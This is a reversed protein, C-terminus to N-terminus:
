VANIKIVTMYTTIHSRDYLLEHIYGSAPKTILLKLCDHETFLSNTIWATKIREWRSNQPFNQGKTIFQEYAIPSLDITAYQEVCYQTTNM